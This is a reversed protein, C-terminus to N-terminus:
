EIENISAKNNSFDQFRALLYKEKTDKGRHILSPHIMIAGTRRTIIQAQELTKLTEVVTKISVQSKESLERTTIILTNTSKDMNELIYKVVQMKKNGLSDILQVIATLYTIMFGNRPTKKVIDDVEFIEGTDLDQLRRKGNYIVDNETRQKPM